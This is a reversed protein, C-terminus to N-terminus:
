EDQAIEESAPSIMNRSWPVVGATYLLRGRNKGPNKAIKRGNHCSLGWLM